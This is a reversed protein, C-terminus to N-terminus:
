PLSFPVAKATGTKGDWTFRCDALLNCFNRLPVYTISDIIVCEGELVEGGDLYVKTPTANSPFVVDASAGIAFMGTITLVALFAAVTRRVKGSQKNQIKM